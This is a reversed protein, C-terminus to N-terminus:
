SKLVHFIHRIGVRLAAAKCCVGAGIDKGTGKFRMVSTLEAAKVLVLQMHIVSGEGRGM